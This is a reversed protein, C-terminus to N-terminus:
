YHSMWRRPEDVQLVEAKQANFEAETLVGADRLDRLKKLLGATEVRRSEQRRLLNARKQPAVPKLTGIQNRYKESDPMTPFGPHPEIVGAATCMRWVQALIPQQTDDMILTASDGAMIRACNLVDELYTWKSGDIHFVDFRQGRDPLAPLVELASGEYFFVRGPFENQLQAVAPRVYAHECIDVGHFELVPNSTLAVYASHGGNVGVELMKTRGEVATRVRDRKSRLIPNPPADVFDAQRHDYCLNGILPQGTAAIVRNLKALGQLWSDSQEMDDM